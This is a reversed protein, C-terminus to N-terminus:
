HTYLSFFLPSLSFSFFIYKLFLITKYVCMSFNNICTSSIIFIFHNISIFKHIYQSYKLKKSDMKKDFLICQLLKRRKKKKIFNNIKQEYLFICVRILKRTNIIHAYM